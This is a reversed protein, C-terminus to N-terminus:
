AYPGKGAKKEITANGFEYEAEEREPKRGRNAWDALTKITTRRRKPRRGKARSAM